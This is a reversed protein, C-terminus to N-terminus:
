RIERDEGASYRGSPTQKLALGGEGLPLTFFVPVDRAVECVDRRLGSCRGMNGVRAKRIPRPAELAATGTMRMGTSYVEGSRAATSEM